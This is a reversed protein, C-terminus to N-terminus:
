KPKIGEFDVNVLTEIPNGTKLKDDIPAGSKIKRADETLYGVNGFISKGGTVQDLEEENLEIEGAPTITQDKDPNKTSM